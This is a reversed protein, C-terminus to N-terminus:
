SISMAAKDNINCERDHNVTNNVGLINNIQYPRNKNKNDDNHLRGIVDAIVQNNYGAGTLDRVLQIRAADEGLDSFVATENMKLMESMWKKRDRIDEVFVIGNRIVHIQLRNYYKNIFKGIAINFEVEDDMKDGNYRFILINIWGNQCLKGLLM